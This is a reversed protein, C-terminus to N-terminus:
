AGLLMVHQKSLIGANFDSSVGGSSNSTALRLAQTNLQLKSDQCGVTIFRLVCLFLFFFRHLKEAGGYGNQKSSFPTM